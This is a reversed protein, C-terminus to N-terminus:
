TEHRLQAECCTLPPASNEQSYAPYNFFYANRNEVHEVSMKPHITSTLALFLNPILLCTSKAMNDRAIPRSQPMHNREMKEDIVDDVHSAQSCEIPSYRYVAEMQAKRANRCITEELIYPARLSPPPVTAWQTTM